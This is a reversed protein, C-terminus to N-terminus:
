KNKSNEKNVQVDLSFPIFDVAHLDCESNNGMNFIKDMCRIIENQKPKIATRNYLTFAEEFEQTNFGTNVTLGFVVPIARFAIFLDDRTDEALTSFKADFNDDDLKAVSLEHEKDTNWSIMIEGAGDAGGFKGKVAAEIQEKVEDSVDEANNFNIISASLMGNSINNYHFRKIEIQTEASVLSSIYDCVPYYGKSKRGKYFFIESGQKGREEMSLSGFAPLSITGRLGRGFTKFDDVIYVRDLAESIRCKCINIYSLSIPAGFANYFVQVAFGGFIWQDLACKCIVDELTEGVTNEGTFPTNNIIGNGITYDVSGNIISQLTSCKMYIDWLHYPFKNDKGWNVYGGMGRSEDYCIHSHTNRKAVSFKLTSKAANPTNQNQKNIDNM